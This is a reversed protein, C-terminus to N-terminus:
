NSGGGDSCGGGADTTGTSCDAGHHGSQHSSVAGSDTYIPTPNYASDKTPVPSGFRRRYGDPGPRRTRRLLFVAFAMLALILLVTQLRM